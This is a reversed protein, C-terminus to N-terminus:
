HNKEKIEYGLQKIFNISHKLHRSHYKLGNLYEVWYNLIFEKTEPVTLIKINIDDINIIYLSYVDLYQWATVSNLHNKLHGISSFTKGYKTDGGSSAWKNTKINKLKYIIHSM